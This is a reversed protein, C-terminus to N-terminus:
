RSVQELEHRVRGTLLHQQELVELLVAQGACVVVCECSCCVSVHAACANCWLLSDDTRNHCDWRRPAKGPFTHQQVLQQDSDGSGHSSSTALHDAMQECLAENEEDMQYITAEVFLIIDLYQFM